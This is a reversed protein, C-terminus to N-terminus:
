RKKPVIKLVLKEDGRMVVIEYEEDARMEGLVYVYDSINRIEKGALEIIKDGSKLGADAAPSNESVGDLVLGDNNGDAYSPVTGLSVSFGRRAGTMGSSKAVSYTPRDPNSDIAGIIDEVFNSIVELGEYNIKEATDSPKHYDRHTGTFFFLVPIKKGYFSSHDSPGFGDQNLQLNFVKQKESDAGTASAAVITSNTSYTMANVPAYPQKNIVLDNWEEATGIGGVTLKGDDLRGVMDMNIMSVINELPVTPNNVFYNSGLLGEEEGGFAIFVITRKNGRNQSLRRALDILASTGSANDDAGHHIDNSNVALSGSGGRGLHDYHAGLVIIEKKLLPDNGRLVGIVNYADVSKKVLDIHLKAFLTRVKSDPVDSEPTEGKAVSNLLTEMAELGSEDTELIGTVSQRSMVITPVATEGLSQNYKFSLKEEAFDRSRSILILAKAGREKAIKAKAHANFLFFMNHPNDNDPTGDFALVIKDKVDLDKFDDYELKESSIGFGAFVVPTFPLSANPSFGLPAWESNLKVKSLKKTNTIEFGNGAGPDIGSMYPFGQLFSEQKKGKASKGTVGAKLRYRAFMNAVYGAAYTAGKEGTRRGELQDSALYAVHKRLNKEVQSQGATQASVGLTLFALFIFSFFQKKM